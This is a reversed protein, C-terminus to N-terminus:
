DSTKFLLYFFQRKFFKGFIKLPLPYYITKQHILRTNSEILRIAKKPTYFNCHDNDAKYGKELPLGMILKGPSKIVRNIENLFLSPEKIHELVQDCVISEFSSDILPFIGNKPILKAKSGKKNIHNVNYENIDLGLAKESGLLLFSGLGCGIDLFENGSHKLLFKHLFYRKYISGILSHSKLYKHYELHNIKEM